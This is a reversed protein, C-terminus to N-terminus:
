GCPIHRTSMKTLPQTSGLAMTRGTEIISYIIIKQGYVYEFGNSAINSNLRLSGFSNDYRLDPLAQLAKTVGDSFVVKAGKRLFRLIIHWKKV